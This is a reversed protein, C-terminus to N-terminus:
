DEAIAADVLEISTIKQETGIGFGSLKHKTELHSIVSDKVSEDSVDIEISDKITATFQIHMIPM